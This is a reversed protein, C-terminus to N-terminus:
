QEKAFLYERRGDPYLRIGIRRAVWCHFNIAVPCIATHTAAMGIKVALCTTKGGIGAPGIGLRNINVLLEEELQNLQLDPNKDRWDRTSIAERSLKSAVDMQGGIGIGIASPPCPMGGANIVTEYVLDKLGKLDDGLQATTMTKYINGLEAGCGKFSIIVEIFKQGPKFKYEVNPVGDGTNNGPNHRTLSHVISPRAYGHGTAEVLAKPIYQSLLEIGEDSGFSMYVTPFGPSQCVPKDQQDAMEVNELMSSLMAVAGPNTEKARATELLELSDASVHTCSQKIWGYVEEYTINFNAL